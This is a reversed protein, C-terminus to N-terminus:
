PCNAAATPNGVWPPRPRPLRLLQSKSSAERDKPPLPQRAVKGHRKVIADLVWALQDGALTAPAGPFSAKAVAAPAGTTAKGPAAALHAAAPATKAVPSSGGCAGCAILLGVLVITRM